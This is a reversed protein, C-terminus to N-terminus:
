IRSFWQFHRINHGPMIVNLTTTGWTRILSIQTVQFNSHNYSPHYPKWLAHKRIFVLIPFPPTSISSMSNDRTSHGTRNIWGQALLCVVVLGTDLFRWYYQIWTTLSWDPLCSTNSPVITPSMFFNIYTSLFMSSGGHWRNLSSSLWKKFLLRSSKECISIIYRFNLWLNCTDGSRGTYGRFSVLNDRWVKTFDVVAAIPWLDSRSIM